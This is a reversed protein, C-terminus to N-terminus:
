GGRHSTRQPAFLVGDIVAQASARTHFTVGDEGWANGNRGGTWYKQFSNQILYHTSFMSM